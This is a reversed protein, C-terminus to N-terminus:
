NISILEIDFILAANPGIKGGAGRAGYALDSPIFLKWKSGVPMLQLAETWGAIVGNVPFSAPQNRAISSDFVDGNILTGHYHTTVKSQYTPKPGTGEQIVQYQLGSPLTVIGDKKKNEELFKQGAVLNKQGQAQAAKNIHANVMQGAAQGNLTERGKLVDELGKKLLEVDLDEVGEHQKLNAGLVVGFAYSVNNM